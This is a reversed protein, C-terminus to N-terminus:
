ERGELSYLYSGGERGVKVCSSLVCVCVCMKANKFPFGRKRALGDVTYVFILFFYLGGGWGTGKV